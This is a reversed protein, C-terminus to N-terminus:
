EQREGISFAERIQARTRASQEIMARESLIERYRKIRPEYDTREDFEGEERCCDGYVRWRLESMERFKQYHRDREARKEEGRRREERKRDERDVLQYFALRTDMQAIEHRLKEPEWHIAQEGFVQVVLRWYEREFQQQSTFNASM